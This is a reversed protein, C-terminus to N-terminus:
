RITPSPRQAMRAKAFRAEEVDPMDSDNVQLRAESEPDESNETWSYGLESIRRKFIDHHSFERDAVM